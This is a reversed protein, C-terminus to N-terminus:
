RVTVVEDLDDLVGTDPWGPASHNQLDRPLTSAHVMGAEAKEPPPLKLRRAKADVGHGADHKQAYRKAFAVTWSVTAKHSHVLTVKAVKTTAVM